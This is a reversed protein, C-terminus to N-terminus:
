PRGARGHGPRGPRRRACPDRRLSPVAGGSRRCGPLDGVASHGCSEPGAEFELSGAPITWEGLGGPFYESGTFATLIEASARSFASHGSVYRPSPQPSSPRNRIPFGTPRWSGDFAASRPRPTPRPHRVLSQGRDRRRTRGPGRPTRGPQTSEATVIEVLGPELPLGDPHYSPLAPIM